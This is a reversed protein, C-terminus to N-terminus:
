TFKFPLFSRTLKQRKRPYCIQMNSLLLSRYFLTIFNQFRRMNYFRELDLVSDKEKFEPNWSVTVKMKRKGFILFAQLPQLSSRSLLSFVPHRFIYKRVIHITFYLSPTSLFQDVEVYVYVVPIFM